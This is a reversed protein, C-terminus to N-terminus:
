DNTAGPRALAVDLNHHPESLRGTSSCVDALAAIKPPAAPHGSRDCESHARQLWAHAEESAFDALAALGAATCASITRAPDSGDGAAYHRARTYIDATPTDDGRDLVRAIQQHLAARAAPDHDALLAERVGDHVFALGAPSRELLRHDVAEAIAADVEPRPRQSVAALRAPDFRPGLIAALALLARTAPALLHVRGVVLQLVDDPLQLSELGDADLLWAGWHPRLLGASLMARVFEGVARPSGASRTAVHRVIDPGPDGGLLAAVLAAVAPDGLPALPVRAALQPALTQLVRASATTPTAGPPRPTPTTDPRLTVVALLPTAAVRAALNRLVQLSSEDIWQADEIVLLLGEHQHALAVLYHAVAAHLQDNAEHPAPESPGTRTFMDRLGPCFQLLLAHADGAAADLRLSAEARAGPPLRRLRRVLEDFARRLAAFPAAEGPECAGALVLPAAHGPLPTAHRHGLAGPVLTAPRFLRGPVLTAPRQALEGTLNSRAREGPRVAGPVADFLARVLRSKGSGPDGELTVVGGLGRLARTWHNRLQNHETDRGVLTTEHDLARPEDDRGLTPPDGLRDARALDAALGTATQYRDDPDKALLRAVIAALAPSCSPALERLDPPVVVAHMRLLEGLEDALFPPRGSVCEFLVAGLAYLDARGDLPRQLMGTQEPPSYLFTGAVQGPEDGARTHTAFGFDILKLAGADSILINHPKLDRHVMGRRHVEALAGALTHGIRIVQAEPMPGSSALIAALTKGAVFDMVLYPQDRQEGVALIEVFCPHRLTALAAAERRFQRAQASADASAPRRLLKVAVVREGHRARHVVSRAGQGVEEEIEIGSIEIM